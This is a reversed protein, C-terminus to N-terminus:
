IKLTRLTFSFHAPNQSRGDFKGVDSLRFTHELHKLIIKIKVPTITNFFLELTGYWRWSITNQTFPTCPGRQLKKKRQKINLFIFNWKKLFVQKVTAGRTTSITSGCLDSISLDFLNTKNKKCHIYKCLCVNKLFVTSNTHIAALQNHFIHLLTQVGLTCQCYCM